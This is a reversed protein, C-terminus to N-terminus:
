TGRCNRSGCLCAHRAKAEPTHREVLVMCYDYFLEQGKKINKIAEIYIHGDEIVSECNPNCSHNIFRAANGHVGADVITRDDVTFLFTHNTGDPNERESRRDAERSTIREGIYEILRE